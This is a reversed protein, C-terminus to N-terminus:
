LGWKFKLGAHIKEPIKKKSSKTDKKTDKLHYKQGGLFIEINTSPSWLLSLFDVLSLAFMLLGLTFLPQGGSVALRMEASQTCIESPDM